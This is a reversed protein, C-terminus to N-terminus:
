AKAAANFRHLHFRDLRNDIDEKLAIRLETLQNQMLTEPADGNDNSTLMFLLFIDVDLAKALKELTKDSVWTRCGEIGSISQASLDAAEALKEQSLGLRKRFAKINLALREKTRTRSVAV